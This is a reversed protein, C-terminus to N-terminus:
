GVCLTFSESICSEEFDALEKCTARITYFQAGIRKDM